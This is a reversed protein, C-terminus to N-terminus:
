REYRLPRKQETAELERLTALQGKTREIARPNKLGALKRELDDISPIKDQDRERKPHKIGSTEGKEPNGREREDKHDPTEKKLEDEWDEEQDWYDNM